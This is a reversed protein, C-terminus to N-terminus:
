RLHELLLAALRDPAQEPVWHSVGHLVEFRGSSQLAEVFAKELLIGHRKVVALWSQDLFQFLGTASSGSAKASPDLGSESKAQNLLYTFDVGTRNAARGIAQRIALADGTRDLTPRIPNRSM